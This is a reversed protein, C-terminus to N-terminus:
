FLLKAPQFLFLEAENKELVTFTCHVVVFMHYALIWEAHMSDVRCRSLHSVCKSCVNGSRSCDGSTVTCNEEFVARTCKKHIGDTAAMLLASLPVDEEDVQRDVIANM